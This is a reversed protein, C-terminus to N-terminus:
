AARAAVPTPTGAVPVRPPLGLPKAPNGFVTEHARVSKLVVSGAGVIAFEGVSLDPLIAANSGVTCGEGLTVAGNISVHGHIQAYAGVQADHALFSHMNVTAFDGVSVHSAVVVYPCLLIGRGLKVGDGIVVSSHIVNVFEAGRELLLSCYKKKQPAEGLACIFVDDAGPRYNEPSAVIPEAVEFGDLIHPRSDLFGGVRWDAGCGRSQKAWGCVERGFRGAGVILLNKM